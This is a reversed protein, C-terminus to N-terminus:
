NPDTDAKSQRQLLISIVDYDACRFFSYSLEELNWIGLRQAIESVQWGPSCASVWALPNQVTGKKKLKKLEFRGPPVGFAELGGTRCSEDCIYRGSLHCPIM